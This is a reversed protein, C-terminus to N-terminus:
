WNIHYVIELWLRLGYLSIWWWYRKQQSHSGQQDHPYMYNHYLTPQQQHHLYQYLPGQYSQNMQNMQNMYPHMHNIYHTQHNRDYYEHNAPHYDRYDFDRPLYSNTDQYDRPNSYGNANTKIFGLGIGFIINLCTSFQIQGFLESKELMKFYCALTLLSDSGAQHQPGVRSCQIANDNRWNLLETKGIGCRQAGPHGKNHIQSWLHQPLLNENNQLFWRDDPTTRLWARTAALLRFRKVRPFSGM